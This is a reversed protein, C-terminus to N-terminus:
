ATAAALRLPTEPAKGALVAIVNRAPLAMYEHLSATSRYATHPTIIASPHALLTHNAPAPEQALVDLMAGALHGSDLAELLASEDVLGGRAVNVLYSGTPMAELAKADILNETEGTLPTHLSLVNSGALLEDLEVRRVGDPWCEDPPFPDYAIVEKFVPGAINALFQAIRGFGVLGLTLSELRPPVPLGAGTWDGARALTQSRPLQRVLALMGAFAHTAVDATAASPVTCVTIGADTAAQVDVMDFGASMTAVVKLKPLASIMHADLSAYGLILGACGQAAALIEGRDRSDLYTAEIGAEALLNLAITHDLDAADTIM